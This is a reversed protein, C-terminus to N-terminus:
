RARSTRRSAQMAEARAQDWRAWRRQITETWMALVAMSSPASGSPAPPRQPDATDAM